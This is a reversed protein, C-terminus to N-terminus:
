AETDKSIGVVDKEVEPVRSARWIYSLHQSRKRLAVKVVGGATSARLTVGGAEAEM